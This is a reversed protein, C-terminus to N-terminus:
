KALLPQLAAKLAAMDAALAEVQARLAANEGQLAQNKSDLERLAEVVLATTGHETIKRIGDADASVWQPLVKEVEQALFGTRQGQPAGHSAIADATYEFTVGRLALLSHLAQTSDIPQVHEKLREDSLTTWSGTANRCTGDANVVIAPQAAGVRILGFSGAGVGGNASGGSVLVWEQGSAGGHKLRLQPGFTGGDTEAVYHPQNNTSSGTGYIHMRHVQSPPSGVSLKGGPVNIDGTIKSIFLASVGAASDPVPLMLPEDAAADAALAFRTPVIAAGDVILHLAAGARALQFRGAADTTARDDFRMANQNVQGNGPRAEGVVVGRVPRGREDVVIGHRAGAPKSAAALTVVGSAPAVAARLMGGGQFAWAEITYGRDFVNTFEFGGDAGTVVRVGGLHAEISAEGSGAGLRTPDALTVSWDPLPAGAADVIRGRIAVAPRLLVAQPAPARGHAPRPDPLLVPTCGVAYVFLPTGPANTRAPVLRFAGEGDTNAVAEGFRATAGGLPSGDLGFVTGLVPQCAPEAHLQVLIGNGARLPLERDDALLGPRQTLLRAGQLAPVTAFAFTGDAASFTLWQRAVGDGATSPPPVVVVMADAVPAGAADVVSGHLALREAVVITATGNAAPRAAQVTEWRADIAVLNPMAPVLRMTFAGDAGSTATAAAAETAPGVVVGVVGNGDLDVVRGRVCDTDTAATAAAAAAAIRADLERSALPASGVAHAATAEREGAAAVAASWPADDEAGLGSLAMVAIPVFVLFVVVLWGARLPRNRPDIRHNSSRKM